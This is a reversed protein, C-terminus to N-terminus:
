ATDMFIGTVALTYIHNSHRETFDIVQISDEDFNIFYLGYTSRLREKGKIISYYVEDTITKANAASNHHIDIQVRFPLHYIDTATSESSGITLKRTLVTSEHIIVQPYGNRIVQRENYSAFVNSYNTIRTDTNVAIINNFATHIDTRITSIDTM